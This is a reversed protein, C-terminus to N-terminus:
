QPPFTALVAFQSASEAGVVNIDRYVVWVHAALRGDINPAAGYYLVSGINRRQLMLHAALGQEFCLARWPVRSAWLQIAWRVRLVTEEQGPRGSSPRSRSLISALRRFRIFGVLVRALALMGLSELVLALDPLSLRFLRTLASLSNATMSGRQREAVRPLGSWARPV